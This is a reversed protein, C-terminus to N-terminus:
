LESQVGLRSVEMHQLHLGLFLPKNESTSLLETQLVLSCLDASVSVALGHIVDGNMAALMAYGVYHPSEKRRTPPARYIGLDLVACKSFSWLWLSESIARTQQTVPYGM